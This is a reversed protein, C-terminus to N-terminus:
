TVRINRLELESRLDNLLPQSEVRRKPHDIALSYRIIPCPVDVYGSSRRDDDVDIPRVVCRAVPLTRIAEVGLTENFPAVLLARGEGIQGESAPRADTDAVLVRHQLDEHNQAIQESSVIKLESRALRDFRARHDDQSRLVSDAHGEGLCDCAVQGRWFVMRYRVPRRELTM